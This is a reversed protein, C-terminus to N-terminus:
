RYEESWAIEDCTKVPIYSCFEHALGEVGLHAAILGAIVLELIIWKRIFDKTEEKM